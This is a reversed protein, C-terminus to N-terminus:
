VQTGEGALVRAMQYVDESMRFGAERLRELLPTIAPILNRKKALVLVGLTGAINLGRAAAIRRGRAEDMLLLAAELEMALVVAESEGAGLRERLLRVAIHDQIEVVRIWDASQVDLAGPKGQAM